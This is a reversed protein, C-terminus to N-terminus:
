KVKVRRVWVCEPLWDQSKIRELEEESPNNDMIFVIGRNIEDQTMFREKLERKNQPELTKAVSVANIHNEYVDVLEDYGNTDSEILYVYEM